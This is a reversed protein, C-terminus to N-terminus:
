FNIKIADLDVNQGPPSTVACNLTHDGYSLGSAVLVDVLQISQSSALNITRKLIGDVSCDISGNPPNEISRVTVSVGTFKYSFGAGVGDSTTHHDCGVFQLPGCTNESYIWNGQYIIGPDNDNVTYPQLNPAGPGSCANPNLLCQLKTVGAFQLITVLAAITALITAITAILRPTNSKSQM